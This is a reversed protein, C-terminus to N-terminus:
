ADKNARRRAIWADVMRDLVDLPVIGESLVLDHFERASFRDGLAVRARERLAQFKLAGIKYGLAQAPFAM